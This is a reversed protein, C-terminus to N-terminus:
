SHRSWLAADVAETSQGDLILRCWIETTWLAVPNHGLLQATLDQWRAGALGLVDRLRGDALFEPRAGSLLRGRASSGLGVQKPRRVVRAPLYAHAVDRLVGKPDPGVRQELPLNLALAVLAPDLFPVRTEVSWQMANKDMRNLLLPLPGTSLGGLLAAELSARAGAHHRYSEAAREAVAREFARPEEAGAPMPASELRRVRGAILGPVRRLGNRRLRDVTHALRARRPLFDEYLGRHMFWYGGFLEDAGEGTLLVKVGSERALSAIAAIPVSSEHPLPYGFHDVAAVLGRRWAHTDVDVTRLVLGLESAVLEAWPGEDLEPDDSVSANFVTLGPQAERAMAAVLSSDLGGSCMVGLPVDAMLRRTVSDRLSDRVRAVLEARGLGALEGALEPDVAQAPDYWRRESTELTDLDVRMMTGPPVREVGEVPTSRGQVWGHAAAHALLDARARRPVGAELLARLESAFWLAGDHRAIYLPKKGFRDRVLLLRREVRDLAAFAFLGNCREIAGEGWHALAHLLTETDSHGAYAAPPLAARLELHNFIEGNFTVSWRGAPHLMPQRGAPTPDVIALRTHALGVSDIVEIGSADPGRHSLAGAMRQLPALDPREGLRVVCGAIGCM